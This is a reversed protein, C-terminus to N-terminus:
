PWTTNPPSPPITLAPSRCVLKATGSCHPLPRLSTPRTRTARFHAVAARDTESRRSHEFASQEAASRPSRASRSTHLTPRSPTSPATPRRPRHDRLDRRRARRVVPRSPHKRPPPRDSARPTALQPARRRSARSPGRRRRSDPSSSSRSSGGRAEVRPPHSACSVAAAAPWRASRAAAEARRRARHVDCAPQTSPARRLRPGPATGTGRVTATVRADPPDSARGFSTIPASGPLPQITYAGPRANQLGIATVRLQESRLIRIAGAHAFGAGAPTQLSQGGPGTVRVEPAATSGALQIM